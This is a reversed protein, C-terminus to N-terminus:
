GFLCQPEITIAVIKTTHRSKTSSKTTNLLTFNLCLLNASGFIREGHKPSELFYRSEMSVVKGIPVFYIVNLLHQASAKTWCLTNVNAAKFHWSKPEQGFVQLALRMTVDSDVITHRDHCLSWTHFDNELSQCNHFQPMEGTSPARYLWTVVSLPFHLFKLCLHAM